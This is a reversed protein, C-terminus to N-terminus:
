EGMRAMELESHDGSSFALDDVPPCFCQNIAEDTEMHLNWWHSARSRTWPSPDPVARLADELEGITHFRDEPDKELCRMVVDDLEPPIPVESIESPRSPVTKVHDIMLEVPSAATFPPRGTLMWYAVAGLAYIDARPGVGATGYVTEPALYRPTGFVVGSKTLDAPADAGPIRKALGFDLVKVFDYLGGRMTLFINSPKLDRHVIARDHAEALSGTVQLLVFVARSAPIPGFRNVFRELDMGELYEMAYYFTNDSARGFDFITITNPHSLSSSLRVEREFRALATRDAGPSTELVKVASPRCMLAHEAVYVTGMGGEGIEKHIVYNGMRRARFATKRLGYLTWTVFISTGGLLATGLGSLFVQEGFGRVADSTWFARIESVLAYSALLMVVSGAAAMASLAVQYRVRWPIFAAPIFLVLAIGFGPIVDPQLFAVEALGSLLNFAAVVFVTVQLATIGPRGLYIYALAIAFSGPYLLDTRNKWEWVPLSTVQANLPVFSTVVLLVVNIALGLGIVLRTRRWLLEWQEREFSSGLQTTRLGLSRGIRLLTDPRERNGNEAM